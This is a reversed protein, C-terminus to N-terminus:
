DSEGDTNEMEALIEQDIEDKIADAMQAILAADGIGWLDGFSDTSHKKRWNAVSQPDSPDYDPDDLSEVLEELPSKNYQPGGLSWKARLTRRKPQIAKSTIDLGFDPINENSEMGSM